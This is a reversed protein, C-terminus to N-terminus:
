SFEIKKVELIEFSRTGGPLKVVVEDGPEKQMLGRILPAQFSLIGNQFDSEQEGLIKYTLEEDKDLDFLTVETGITVKDGAIPLDEILEASKVKDMLISVEHKLNSQLDLAAEWESNESLDGYDAAKALEQAVETKLRHTIEDVKEKMIELSNKTTYYPPM